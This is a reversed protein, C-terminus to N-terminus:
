QKFDIAMIGKRSSKINNQNTIKQFCVYVYVCMCVGICVYMCVYVCVYMCVYVGVCMCVRVCM